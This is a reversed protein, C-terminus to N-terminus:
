VKIKKNLIFVIDRRKMVFRSIKKPSVCGYRDFFNENMYAVWHTGKSSHLNVIAIDGSFPGDRFHMGVDSLGLSSFFQYNKTKSTATNELKYKHAFDNFSM